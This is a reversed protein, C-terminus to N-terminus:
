LGSPQATGNLTAVTKKNSDVLKLDLKDQARTGEVALNWLGKGSIQEGSTELEVRAVNTVGFQVWTVEWKGAIDAAETAGVAGCDTKFLGLTAVSTLFVERIKM